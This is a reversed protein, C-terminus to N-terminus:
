SCTWCCNRLSAPCPQAMEQNYGQHVDDARCFPLARAVRSYSFQTKHSIILLNSIFCESRHAVELVEDIYIKSGTRLM